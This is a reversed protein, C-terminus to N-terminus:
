AYVKQYFWGMKQTNIITVFGKIVQHDLLRNLRFNVTEKSKRVKKAIESVTARANLDLEYIIRKDLNDLSM